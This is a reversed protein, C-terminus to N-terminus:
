RNHVICTWESVWESQVGSEVDASLNANGVNAAARHQSQPMIRGQNSKQNRCMGADKKKM